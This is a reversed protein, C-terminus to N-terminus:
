FQLNLGVGWFSEHDRSDTDSVALDAFINMNDGVTRSFTATLATYTQNEAALSDASGLSGGIGLNVLDLDVDYTLRGEFTEYDDEDDQYYNFTPTLITNESVSLFGELTSDQNASHDTNYM